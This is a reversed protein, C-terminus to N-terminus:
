YTCGILRALSGDEEENDVERICEIVPEKLLALLQVIKMMALDAEVLDPRRAIVQSILLAKNKPAM